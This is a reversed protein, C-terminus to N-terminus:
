DTQDVNNQVCLVLDPCFTDTTSAYESLYSALTQIMLVETAKKGKVKNYGSPHRAEIHNSAEDM